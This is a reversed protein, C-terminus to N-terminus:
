DDSPEPSESPERSSHPARTPEPTRSGTGGGGPGGDGHDETEGPEDSEASETESPEARETEAESPEATERPAESERDSRQPSPLPAPTVLAPTHDPRPSSPGLLGLAGAAGYAAASTLSAGLVAIALVYAAAAARRRPAGGDAARRWAVRLSEVFGEPGPRRRLAALIGAPRPAPEARIAAMIGDALDPSTRPDRESLLAQLRRGSEIAELLQDDEAGTASGSLEHADFRHSTM